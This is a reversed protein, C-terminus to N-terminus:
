NPKEKMNRGSKHAIPQTRNQMLSAQHKRGYNEAVRRQFYPGNWFYCLCIIYAGFTSQTETTYLTKRLVLDTLEPNGKCHVYVCWTLVAHYLMGPNRIWTQIIANYRKEDISNMWGKKVCVLMLYDLGGPFGSAFFCGHNMLTGAQVAYALPLMVICMVIHHVWDIVTLPQFAMIHYLHLGLIIMCSRTDTEKAFYSDLVPQQYSMFTDPFAMVTVAANCIVHLSLYRGNKDNPFWGFLKFCQDVIFYFLISSMMLIGDARVDSTMNDSFVPYTGDANAM